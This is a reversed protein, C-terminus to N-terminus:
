IRPHLDYIYGFFACGEGAEMPGVKVLHITRSYRGVDSVVDDRIGFTPLSPDFPLSFHRSHHLLSASSPDLLLLHM